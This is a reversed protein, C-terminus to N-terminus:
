VLQQQHIIKNLKLLPTLILSKSTEKIELFHNWIIKEIGEPFVPTLVLVTHVTMRTNTKEQKCSTRERSINSMFQKVYGVLTNQKKRYTGLTLYKLHVSAALEAKSEACLM